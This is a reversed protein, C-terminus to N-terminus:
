RFAGCAYGDAGYYIECHFQLRPKSKVDDQAFRLIKKAKECGCRAKVDEGAGYDGAIRADDGVAGAGVGYGAVFVGAEGCGGGFFIISTIFCM